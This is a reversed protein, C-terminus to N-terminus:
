PEAPISDLWGGSFGARRLGRVLHPNGRMTRWILGSEHNEIMALIPGQDIGLWDTDFWGLEPDVHGHQVPVDLTFTPNLADLFGYTSFINEGYTRVMFELAPVVLHPVFAISAACASPCITGDDDAEVLTTGDNAVVHCAGRAWYTHFERQRGAIEFRGEVPGDCATLGWLLPGYGAWGGPNAVVYAHQTRAARRSNEFYDIGRARTSDDQIGRFDVWVHSYQHGFLPGFVFHEEGPTGGWRYTSTWAAWAEPEVPHTPSGLALLYLIMAENYGRWDWPLFGEEPTWGHSIAPPRVTAWRWDVRAYLSDALACVSAEETDGRDFYSACFQAGAVLLATDVTSLEVDRFRKGTDAELFHYFFGHWGTAGETSDQPADLLFRLTTLVRDRAEARTVWGREAGIPYATLAFGTAAVSAFSRTPFRDPTLGTREHSLDWFYRFTREATADLLGNEDLAPLPVPEAAHAEPESQRHFICGAWTVALAALATLVACSAGGALRSGVDRTEMM